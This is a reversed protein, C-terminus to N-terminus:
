ENRHFALYLQYTIEALVAAVSVFLGAFFAALSL